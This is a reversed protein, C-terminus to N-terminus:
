GGCGSSGSSCSSSSCSSSSCSSSSCSSSSCSSSSSSSSSSGSHTPLQSLGLLDNTSVGLFLPAAAIATLGSIAATSAVEESSTRRGSLVDQRLSRTANGLWSLYQDARASRSEWRRKAVFSTAVALAAMEVVLFGHPRHLERARACRVVGVFLMAAGAVVILASVFTRMNRSREFGARAMSARLEPAYRQAIGKAARRIGLYSDGIWSLATHFDALIPDSPPSGSSVTLSTGNGRVWGSAVAAAMLAEAVGSEGDRLWAIAWVDEPGPLTGRALPRPGAPGVSSRYAGLSEAATSTPAVHPGGTREILSAVLESAFWGIGFAVLSLLAYLVLFEPGSDLNFPWVDYLENM